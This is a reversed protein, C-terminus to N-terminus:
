VRRTRRARRVASRSGVSLKRRATNLRSKVAAETMGLQEAIERNTWEVGALALVRQEKLTLRATARRVNEIMARRVCRAEPCVDTGTARCHEGLAHFKDRRRLNIARNRGVTTLWTFFNGSGDADFKIPESCFIVFTDQVVDDADRNPFFRRVYKRLRTHYRSALQNMAARDGAQALRVLQRERDRATGTEAPHPGRRPQSGQPARPREVSIRHRRPWSGDGHRSVDPEVDNAPQPDERHRQWTLGHADPGSPEPESPVTPCANRFPATHVDNEVGGGDSRSVGACTIPPDIYHDPNSAASDQSKDPLTWPTVPPSRTDRPLHAAREPPAIRKRKPTMNSDV